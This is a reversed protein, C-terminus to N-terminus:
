LFIIYFLFMLALLLAAWKLGANSTPFEYSCVPCQKCDADIEM